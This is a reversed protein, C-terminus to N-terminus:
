FWSAWQSRLFLGPLFSVGTTWDKIKGDKIFFIVPVINVAWQNSIKSDDDNIVSFSFGKSDLYTKIDHDSGSNMAVTMVPYYESLASVSPSTVSCVSCWTGWFYLIVLQNQSLTKLSVTQQTQLDVGLISTTPVEQPFQRGRWMDIALAILSFILIYIGGQIMLVKGNKLARKIFLANSRKHKKHM